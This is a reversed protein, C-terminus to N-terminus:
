PRSARAREKAAQREEHARWARHCDQARDPLSWYGDPIHPYTPAILGRSLAEGIAASHVREHGYTIWYGRSDKDRYVDRTFGDKGPRRMAAVLEDATKIAALRDSPLDYGPRGCTPCANM